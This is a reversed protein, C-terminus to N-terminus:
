VAIEVQTIVRVPDTVIISVMRVNDSLAVKAHIDNIILIVSLGCRMTMGIYTNTRQHFIKFKFSFLKHDKCHMKRTYKAHQNESYYIECFM